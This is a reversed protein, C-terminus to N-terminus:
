PKVPLHRKHESKIQMSKVLALKKKDFNSIDKKQSLAILIEDLEKYTIGMEAEDTQGQWLGASPPKDIIAQNIKLYRAIEYVEFKYCDALPLADVGSDGYKTFYGVEIETKNGTGLVLYNNKAAFYYLTIMRLRPKINAVALSNAPPLIKIFQNFVKTLDVIEYKIKFKKAFEIADVADQKISNCPMIIALINKSIARALAATVASDIGGSLGVVFGNANATTLLNKLFKQIKLVKQSIKKTNINNDKM